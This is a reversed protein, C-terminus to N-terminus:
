LLGCAQAGLFDRISVVVDKWRAPELGADHIDDTLDALKGARQM